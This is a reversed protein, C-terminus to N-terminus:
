SGDKEIYTLAYTVSEFVNQVQDISEETNQSAEDFELLVQAFEKARDNDPPFPPNPISSDGHHFMNLLIKTFVKLIQKDLSTITSRSPIINVSDFSYGQNRWGVSKAYNGRNCKKEKKLIKIVEHIQFENVYPSIYQKYVDSHNSYHYM